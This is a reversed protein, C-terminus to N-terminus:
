SCAQGPRLCVRFPTFPRGNQVVRREANTNGVVDQRQWDEDGLWDRLFLRCCCHKYRKVTLLLKTASFLADWRDHMDCPPLSVPM